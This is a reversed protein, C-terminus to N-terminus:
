NWTVMQCMSNRKGIPSSTWKGMGYGEGERTRSKSPRRDGHSLSVLHNYHGIVRNPGGPRRLNGQLEYSHKTGDVSAHESVHIELCSIDVNWTCIDLESLVVIIQASISSHTHPLTHIESRVDLLSNLLSDAWFISVMEPKICCLQPIWLWEILVFIKVKFAFKINRGAGFNIAQLHSRACNPNTLWRVSIAHKM